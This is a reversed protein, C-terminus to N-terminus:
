RCLQDALEGLRDLRTLIDLYIAQMTEDMGDSLAIAEQPEEEGQNALLKRAILAGKCVCDVLAPSEGESARCDTFASEVVCEPLHWYRAVMGGADLYGIGCYARLLADLDDGPREKRLALARETTAPQSDALCLLGISRLLGATRAQNGSLAPVENACQAAAEAGLLASLWYTKADFSPCAAPNFVEAIALAMAVSRIVDMGLRGCAMDLSDIPERPASWASNALGLIRLAISPSEQIVQSIDRYGLNEDNIAQLLRGIAVPLVPVRMHLENKKRSDEDIGINM